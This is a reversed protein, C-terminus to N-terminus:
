VQTQIRLRYVGPAPRTVGFLELAVNIKATNGKALAVIRRFNARNTEEEVTTEANESSFEESFTFGSAAVAEKFLKGYKQKQESNFAFQNNTESWGIKLESALEEIYARNKGSLFSNMAFNMARQNPDVTM